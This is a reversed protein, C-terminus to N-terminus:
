KLWKRKLCYDIILSGIVSATAFFLLTIGISFDPEAFKGHGVFYGDTLLIISGIFFLIGGLALNGSFLPWDFDNM